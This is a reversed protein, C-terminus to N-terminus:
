TTLPTNPKFFKMSEGILEDSVSIQDYTQMDMLVHGTNDSYLYEM